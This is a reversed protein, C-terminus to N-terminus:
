CCQMQHPREPHNSARWTKSTVDAEPIGTSPKCREKGDSKSCPKQCWVLEMPLGLHLDVCQSNPDSGGPSPPNLERSSPQGLWSGKGRWCCAPHSASLNLRATFHSTILEVRLDNPSTRYHHSHNADRILKVKVHIKSPSGGVLKLGKLFVNAKLHSFSKYVWNNVYGSLIWRGRSIQSHPTSTPWGHAKYTPACGVGTPCLWGGIAEGVWGMLGQSLGPALM